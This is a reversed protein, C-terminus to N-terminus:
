NYQYNIMWQVQFKDKCMGFYANFFTKNMPMEIEGGASLANFLQDAEAESEVDMCIHINDGFNITRGMSEIVDSARLTHGNSLPLSIHIFKEGEEKLMKEGGLLRIFAPFIPLGGGFVSKYFNMAAEANGKFHLYPNFQRM